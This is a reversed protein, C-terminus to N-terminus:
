DVLVTFECRPGPAAALRTDRTVLACSLSESLAVYSADYPTVNGRLEFARWILKRSAYRDLPMTALMTLAGQFRELSIKGSLWLKRLAAAVEVDVFDPAAISEDRLLRRAAEGRESDDSVIDVLVSADFVMMQIVLFIGSVNRM